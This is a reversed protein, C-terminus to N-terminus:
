KVDRWTTNDHHIANANHISKMRDSGIRDSEIRDSKKQKRSGSKVNFTLEEMEVITPPFYIIPITLGVNKRKKGYSAWYEFHRNRTKKNPSVTSSNTPSCNQLVPNGFVMSQSQSLIKM